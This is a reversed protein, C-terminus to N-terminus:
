GYGVTACINSTPILTYENGFSLLHRQRNLLINPTCVIPIWCGLGGDEDWLYGHVAVGEM